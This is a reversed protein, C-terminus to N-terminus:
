LVSFNKLMGPFKESFLLPHAMPALFQNPGPLFLTPDLDPVSERMAWLIDINFPPIFKGDVVHVLMGPFIESFPM